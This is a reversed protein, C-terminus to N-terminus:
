NRLTMTNVQTKAEDVMQETMVNQLQVEMHVTRGGTEDKADISMFGEASIKIIISIPAGALLGSPLPELMGNVLPTNDEDPVINDPGQDQKYDNEFLEIHVQTQNPSVTYANIVKDLPITSQKFIVNYVHTIEPHNDEAFRIGYSKSVVNRIELPAPAGAGPGLGFGHGGKAKEKEPDLGKKECEKMFENWEAINAGFIAAGKAVSEDPEHVEIPTDPFERALREKIQPMKTSGGVLLIKDIKTVGKKAADAITERTKDVTSQLLGATLTDFQERTLEIREGEFRIAVSERQSLQKKATESKLELDGLMVPDELISDANGGTASCYQDVIYNTIIEDWDKGGLHHDGGTAAVDIVGPKVSIITVDFTGGGLDYVMVTQEGEAKLGYSIAAATPEQLIALVNLGAIEGAKKTAEKADLGFYAPCTIVVDKVEEKLTLSADAALKKLILASVTEPQYEQGNASFTFDRSGMQRKVASCVLEPDSALAEKAVQGVSFNDATEFFVVSPTVPSNEQNAVTVPKGYEDLYAICSYTTGLDIGFIKGM